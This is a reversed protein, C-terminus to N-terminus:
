VIYNNNNKKLTTVAVMTDMARNFVAQLCILNRREYSEYLFHNVRDVLNYVCQNFEIGRDGVTYFM